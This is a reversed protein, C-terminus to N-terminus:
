KVGPGHNVDQDMNHDPGDSVIVKRGHADTEYINMDGVIAHGPGHKVDQDLNHRPQGAIIAGKGGKEYSNLDDYCQVGPGANVSHGCDMEPKVNKIDNINCENAEHMKMKSM